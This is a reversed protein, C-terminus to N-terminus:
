STRVAGLPMSATFIAAAASRSEDEGVHLHGLIVPMSSKSLNCCSWGSRGTIMMVAKPVTSFATEAHFLAGEIVRLGKLFSSIMIVIALAHSCRVEDQGVAQQVLFQFFLVAEWYQPSDRTMSFNQGQHFPHSPGSGRDQNSAFAAGALFENGPGDV